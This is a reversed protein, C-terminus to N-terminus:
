LNTTIRYYAINLSGSIVTTGGRYNGVIVLGYNQSSNYNYVNKNSYKISDVKGESTNSVILSGIYMNDYQITNTGYFYAIAIVNSETGGIQQTSSAFNLSNSQFTDSTTLNCSIKMFYLGSEFSIFNVRDVVKNVDNVTYNVNKNFEFVKEIKWSNNANDVYGKTALHSASTPTPGSVTGSFTTNGSITLDHSLTFDIAAKVLSPSMWKTDVTGAQAEQTSAKDLVKQVLTNSMNSVFASVADADNADMGNNYMISAIAYAVLSVQYQFKNQLQSSAIGSQVGNLRQQNTNYASDNLMNGKNQDFLLINNTPM